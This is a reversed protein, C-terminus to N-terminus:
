AVGNEEGKLWHNFWRIHLSTLDEKGELLHESAQMGFDIEGQVAGFDGHTWPGVILRQPTDQKDTMHEFNELTSKLLSDYWGAVHIAPYTIDEYKDTIKTLDWIP